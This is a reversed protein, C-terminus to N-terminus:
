RPNYYQAFPFYHKIFLAGNDDDNDKIKRSVHDM